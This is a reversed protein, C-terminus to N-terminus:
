GGRKRQQQKEWIDGAVAMLLYLVFALVVFFAAGLWPHILWAGYTVAGMVAVFALNGPHLHYRLPM